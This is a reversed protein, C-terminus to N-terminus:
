HAFVEFENLLELERGNGVGGLGITYLGARSGRWVAGLPRWTVSNGKQEKETNAKSSPRLTKAESAFQAGQGYGEVNEQWPHVTPCHEGGQLGIRLQGVDGDNQKGPHRVVPVLRKPQAGR